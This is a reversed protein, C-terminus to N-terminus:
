GRFVRSIGHLTLIGKFTKKEGNVELVFISELEEAERWSKNNLPSVKANYNGNITPETFTNNM